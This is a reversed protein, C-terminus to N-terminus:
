QGGRELAVGRYPPQPSALSGGAAFVRGDVGFVAHITLPTDAQEVTVEFSDLDLTGVVGSNGAVYAEGSEGLWVGNLGVIPAQPHATWDAGDFHVVVGNSRGGVMVINDPGTGWLSILDDSTGVHLEELEEGDFRLVAGRQGVIYFNDADTGWIKFFARVNPRELEPLEVEHWEGDQFRVVTAAGETRGDGGVAWIDDQSAGWVGWLDQDTPTQEARWGDGASDDPRLIVGGNGAVIPTGDDFVHVWNLLEVSEPVQQPQWQEGDFHVIHGRQPTGGVMYVDDSAAAAVSMLWGEESADFAPQWSVQPENNGNNEEDDSSPGCGAVCFILCVAGIFIAGFRM